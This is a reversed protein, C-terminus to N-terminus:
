RTEGHLSLYLEELIRREIDHRYTETRWTHRQEPSAPAEMEAPTESPVGDYRERAGAMRRHVEADQRQQAVALEAALQGDRRRLRMTAVHRAQSEGLLRQGGAEAFKPRTRIEGTDPNASEVVFGNAALVERASVFAATYDVDGLMRTTGPSQGNCGVALAATAVTLMLALHRM